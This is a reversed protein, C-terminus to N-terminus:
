YVVGGTKKRGGGGEVEREREGKLNVVAVAISLRSVRLLRKIQTQSWTKTSRSLFSSERFLVCTRERGRGRPIEEERVPGGKNRIEKAPRRADYLFLSSSIRQNPAPEDGVYRRRVSVFRKSVSKGRPVLNRRCPVLSSRPPSTLSEEASGSEDTPRDTMERKRDIMGRARVRSRFGFELQAICQIYSM